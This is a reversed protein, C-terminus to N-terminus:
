HFSIITLQSGVEKLSDCDISVGVDLYSWGGKDGQVPVKDGTRISGNDGKQTSLSTSYNRANVVKGGEIEKVTFDLRFYKTQEEPKNEATQPFCPAALLAVILALKTTKTM